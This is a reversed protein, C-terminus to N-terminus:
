QGAEFASRMREYQKSLPVRLREPIEAWTRELEELTPAGVLAAGADRLSMGAPPESTERQPRELVREGSERRRELEAKALAKTDDDVNPHARIDELDADAVDTWAYGKFPGVPVVEARAIADITVPEGEDGDGFDQTFLESLGATVLVADILASKKAMKISKNLTGYDQDLNRGGAGEGVLRGHSDYLHCRLLLHSPRAGRAIEGALLELDPFRPVLGLLACIKEAGPKQLAPKSWHAAITCAEGKYCKTKTKQSYMHFRGFDVGEVLNAKIWRLLEARNDDLRKLRSSFTQRNVDLAPRGFDDGLYTELSRAAAATEAETPDRNEM